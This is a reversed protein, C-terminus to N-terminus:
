KEVPRRIYQRILIPCYLVGDRDEMLVDHSKLEFVYHRIMHLSVGFHASLEDTTMAVHGYPTGSKLMPILEYFFGRASMQCGRLAQGVEDGLISRINNQRKESEM